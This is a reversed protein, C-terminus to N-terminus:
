NYKYNNLNPALIDVLNKNVNKRANERISRPLNILNCLIDRCNIPFMRNINQGIIFSSNIYGVMPLQGEFYLRDGMSIDNRKKWKSIIENKYFYTSIEFSHGTLIFDGSKAFSYVNRVYYERDVGTHNRGIIYNWKKLLKKNINGKNLKVNVFFHPYSCAKSLIPPIKKDADSIVKNRKITFTKVPINISKCVALIVRSDYGATLPVYITNNTQKCQEYIKKIVTQLYEVCLNIIDDTNKLCNGSSYHIINNHKIKGDLSIIQRPLLRKVNLFQTEPPIYFKYKYSKSKNTDISESDITNTPHSKLKLKNKKLKFKNKLKFNLKKLVSVNNTIYCRNKIYMYELGIQGSCDMYLYNNYIVVYTGIISSLINNINEENIDNFITDDYKKNGFFYTGLIYIKQNKSNEFIRMNIKNYFLYTNNYDLSIKNYKKLCDINNNCILFCNQLM